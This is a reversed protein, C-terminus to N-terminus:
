VIQSVSVEALSNTRRMRTDVFVNRRSATPTWLLLTGAPPGFERLCGSLSVGRRITSRWILRASNRFISNSLMTHNFPNPYTSLIRLNTPLWSKAGTNDEASLIRGESEASVPSHAVIYEVVAQFLSVDLVRPNQVEIGFLTRMMDPLIVSATITYIAQPDLPQGGVLAYDLQRGVGRAPTFSYQMGSVQILYDLDYPMVLAALSSELARYLEAGSLEFTMLQFGFPSQPNFGTGIAQYIDARTLDGTFIDQRLFGGAEVALDTHTWARLADTVLNGLPSDAEGSPTPTWRWRIDEAARGVVQSYFQVGLMEEVMGQVGIIQQSVAEVRPVDDNIPIQVASTVRVGNTDVELTVRGLEKLATSGAVIRVNSHSIANVVTTDLAIHQHGGIVLDIGPVFQALALDYQIGLHTLAIVVDCNEQRRLRMVQEGALAFLVEATDGRVIVGVNTQPNFPRAIIMTTPTLLSFVGVRVSHREFVAFPQIINSLGTTDLAYSLNACLLPFAGESGPLIQAQALMYLLIDPGLDFEHNGVAMADIGLAKQLGFEPVGLFMNFIIDGSCNDGANLVITEADRQREAGILAALRDYGGIEGYGDDGHPGWAALHTHTDNFHLITITEASAAVTLMLGFLAALAAILLTAYTQRKM